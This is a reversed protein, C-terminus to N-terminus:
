IQNRRQAEKIRQQILQINLDDWYNIYVLTIHNEISLKLKQKDRWQQKEFGDKGGFFDIPEFHQKGQYEFALHLSPIFVDYSLQSNGQKLFDARYQYYVPKKPFMQTILQFMLQESKWKNEPISYEYLDIDAYMGREISKLLEVDNYSKMYATLWCLSMGKEEIGLKGNGLNKKRWSIDFTGNLRGTLVTHMDSNFTFLYKLGAWTNFHKPNSCTVCAFLLDSGIDYIKKLTQKANTHCIAIGHYPEEKLDFLAYSYPIGEWKNYLDNIQLNPFATNILEYKSIRYPNSYGLIGNFGWYSCLPITRTYKKIGFDYHGADFIEEVVLSNTFEINISIYLILTNEIIYLLGYDWVNFVQYNCNELLSKLGLIYSEFIQKTNTDPIPAVIQYLGRRIDKDIESFNVSNNYYDVSKGSNVISSPVLIYIPDTHPIGWLPFNTKIIQTHSYKM